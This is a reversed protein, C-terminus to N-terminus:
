FHRGAIDLREKSGLVRPADECLANYVAKEIYPSTRSMAPMATGAWVPIAVLAGLGTAAGVFLGLALCAGNIGWGVVPGATAITAGRAIKNLSKPDLVNAVGHLLGAPATPLNLEVLEKGKHKEGEVRLPYLNAPFHLPEKISVSYWSPILLHFVIGKGRDSEEVLRRRIDQMFLCVTDLNDAKACFEPPLPNERILRHFAGYWNTDPHYVFFRHNDRKAQDIDNIRKQIFDYVPRAFGDPGGGGSVTISNSDRLHDCIVNLAQIAQYGQAIQTWRGYYNIHDVLSKGIVHIGHIERVVNEASSAITKVDEGSFSASAVVTDASRTVSNSPGAAASAWRKLIEVTMQNSVDNAEAALNDVIPQSAGPPKKYIAEIIRKAIRSAQAAFVVRPNNCLNGFAEAIEASEEALPGLVPEIIRAVEEPCKMIADHLLEVYAENLPLDPYREQMLQHLEVWDTAALDAM